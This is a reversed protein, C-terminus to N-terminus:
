ALSADPLTSPAPFKRAPAPMPLQFAARIFVTAMWGAAIWWSQWLSYGVLGITLYSVLTASAAAQSLNGHLRNLTHILTGICAIFCVLGIMGLELWVQLLSNHPHNPLPYFIPHKVDKAEVPFYRASDLGWGLIPHESAKHSVFEWIYLRHKASEPLQPLSHSANEADITLMFFPLACMFLVCGCLLIRLGVSGLFLIFFFTTTALLYALLAANSELTSLVCACVVWALAAWVYKLRKWLLYFCAWTFLALCTAGKNLMYLEFPKGGTHLANWLAGHTFRDVALAFVAIATGWLLATELSTTVLAQEKLWLFICYGLLFVCGLKASLLFAKQPVIGWFASVAGFVLLVLFIKVTPLAFLPQWRNHRIVYFLPCLSAIGLLPVLGNSALVSVGPTLFAVWLLIRQGWSNLM